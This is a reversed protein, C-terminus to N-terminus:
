SRLSDPAIAKLWCPGSKRTPTRYESRFGPGGLQSVVINYNGRALM